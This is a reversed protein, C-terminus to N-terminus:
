HFPAQAKQHAGLCCTQKPYTNETKKQETFMKLQSNAYLM